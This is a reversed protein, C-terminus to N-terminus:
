YCIKCAGRGGVESKKIAKIVKSRKLSRCSKTEHYKKGKPTIYVIEAASAILTVGLFLSALLKKM